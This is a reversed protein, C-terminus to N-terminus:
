HLYKKGERLLAAFIKFEPISYSDTLSTSIDNIRIKKEIFQGGWALALIASVVGETGDRYGAYVRSHGHRIDSLFPFFGADPSKAMFVLPFHYRKGIKAAIAKIKAKDRLTVYVFLPLHEKQCINLLTNNKHFDPGVRLADLFAIHKGLSSMSKVAGLLYMGSKKVQAYLLPLASFDQKSKLEIGVADVSAAKLMKCPSTFSIKGIKSVPGCDGIIFPAAHAKFKRKM